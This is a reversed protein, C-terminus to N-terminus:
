FLGQMCCVTSKRREFEGVMKFCLLGNVIFPQCKSITQKSYNRAKILNVFLCFIWGAKMHRASYLLLFIANKKDGINNESFCQSFRNVYAWLHGDIEKYYFGTLGQM